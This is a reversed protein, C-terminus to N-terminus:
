LPHPEFLEEVKYELTIADRERVNDTLWEYARSVNKDNHQNVCPLASSFPECMKKLGQLVGNPVSLRGLSVRYTVEVTLGEVKKM